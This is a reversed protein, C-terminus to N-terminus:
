LSHQLSTGKHSEKRPEPPPEPPLVIPPVPFHTPFKDELETLIWGRFKKIATFEIVLLVACSTNAGLIKRICYKAYMYSHTVSKSLYNFLFCCYQNIKSTTCSSM